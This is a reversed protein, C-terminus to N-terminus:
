AEADDDSGRPAGGDTQRKADWEAFLSFLQRSKDKISPATNYMIGHHWWSIVIVITAPMAVRVRLIARLVLLELM